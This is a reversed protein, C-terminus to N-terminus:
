NCSNMPQKKKLIFLLTFLATFPAPHQRYICASCKTTNNTYIYIYKHQLALFDWPRRGGMGRIMKAITLDTEHWCLNVLRKVAYDEPAALRAGVTRMM